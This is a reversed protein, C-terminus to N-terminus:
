AWFLQKLTLSSTRQPIKSTKGTANPIKLCLGRAGEWMM